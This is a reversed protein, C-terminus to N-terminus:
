VNYNKVFNFLFDVDFTAKTTSKKIERKEKKLFYM